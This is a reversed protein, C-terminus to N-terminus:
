REAYCAARWGGAWLQTGPWGVQGGGRAGAAPGGECCRAGAGEAGGGAAACRWVRQGQQRWRCRRGGGAGRQPAGPQPAAARAGAGRRRGGAAVRARQQRRPGAAAPRRPLGGQSHRPTPHTALCCNLKSALLLLLGVPAAMTTHLVSCACCVVSGVSVVPDEGCGLGAWKEARRCALLSGRCRPAREWRDRSADRSGDRDGFGFGGRRPPRDDFERRPRDEFATPKFDGGSASRPLIPPLTLTCTPLAHRQQRQKWTGRSQRATIAAGHPLHETGARTLCRCTVAACWGGSAVGGAACRLRM